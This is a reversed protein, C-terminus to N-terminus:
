VGPSVKTFDFPIDNTHGFRDDLYKELLKESEEIRTNDESTDKRYLAITYDNAIKQITGDMSITVTKLNNDVINKSGILPLIISYGNADIRGLRARLSRNIISDTDTQYIALLTKDVDGGLRKSIIGAQSYYGSYVLITTPTPSEIDAFGVYEWYGVSDFSYDSDVWSIYDVDDETEKVATKEIRSGHPSYLIIKLDRGDLPIIGNTVCDKLAVRLKVNKTDLSIMMTTM